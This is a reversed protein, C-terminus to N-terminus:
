KNSLEPKPKSKAHPITDKLTRLSSPFATDSRSIEQSRETWLM